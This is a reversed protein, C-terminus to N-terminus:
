PAAFLSADQAGRQLSTASWVTRDGETAQLLIGDPTVCATKQEAANTWLAGVEGVITCPGTVTADAGLQDNWETSVDPIDPVNSRMVMNRGAMNIVAFKEGTDPNDIVAIQGQGPDFEVRTKAGDRVLTLPIQQGGESTILVELRYAGQKLGPFAGASVTDAATEVETQTNEVAPPSCAALAVVLCAAALRKM